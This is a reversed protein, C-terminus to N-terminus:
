KPAPTRASIAGALADLEARDRLRLKRLAKALHESVTSPALGLEYSVLKLSCGQCLLATVQRERWTLAAESRVGPPNRFALLLRKGDRDTHAVLSWRGDFLGRWLSLARTASVRRAPGLAERVRRGRDTLLRALADRGSAKRSGRAAGDEASEQEWDESVALHELRGVSTLVAEAASLSRDGALAQRLRYAAALHTGLRAFLDRRQAPLSPRPWPCGVSVGSGDAATGRIGMQDGAARIFGDMFDQRRHRPFLDTMTAARPYPAMLRQWIPAPFSPSARSGDPDRGDLPKLILAVKEEDIGYQRWKGVTDSPADYSLAYAGHGPGFLRATATALGTLWAGEDAAVDYAAELVAVFDPIGGKM